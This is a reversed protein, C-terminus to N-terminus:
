DFDDEILPGSVQPKSAPTIDKKISLLGITSFALLTSTAIRKESFTIKLDKLKTIILSHVVFRIFNQDTTNIGREICFRSFVYPLAPIIAGNEPTLPMSSPNAETDEESSSEDEKKYEAILRQTLSVEQQILVVKQQLATGQQKADTNAQKLAALAQKLALTQQHLKEIAIREKNITVEDMKLKGQILLLEAESKKATAITKQLASFSNLLTKVPATKEKLLNVREELLAISVGGSAEAEAIQAIHKKCEALGTLNKSLISLREAGLQQILASRKTLDNGQEVITVIKGSRSSSNVANTM